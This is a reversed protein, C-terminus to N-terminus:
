DSRATAHDLRRTSPRAGRSLAALGRLRTALTGGHRARLYALFLEPGGTPRPGLHPRWRGRRVAIAKTRTLELLGEDGRTRGYGSEGRGGFPLRPDATPVILDNIVVVGADVRRALEEAAARPGFISAGLAYPCRDDATLAEEVGDVEILSLVPAFLDARAIAMEPRVGALVLPAMGARMPLGGLVPRAGDRLA